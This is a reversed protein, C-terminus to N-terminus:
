PQPVIKLKKGMTKTLYKHPTLLAYNKKDGLIFDNIKLDLIPGLQPGMAHIGKLLYVTLLTYELDRPVSDHSVMGDLPIYDPLISPIQKVNALDNRHKRRKEM